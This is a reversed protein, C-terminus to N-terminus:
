ALTALPGARGAVSALLAQKLRIFPFRELGTRLPGRRPLAGPSGSERRQAM